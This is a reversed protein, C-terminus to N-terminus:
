KLLMVFFGITAGAITSVIPNSILPCTGSACKGFYGVAFGLMGGILAGVILRRM